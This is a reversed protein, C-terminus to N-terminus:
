RKKEGKNEKEKAQKGERSELFVHSRKFRKRGFAMRTARHPRAAKNAKAITIILKETDLGNTNANSILSKLLKIFQKSAKVPYRGSMKGKPMNHKHPIEGKMPVAIEKRSVKELMEIARSPNKGRIFNCIAVSHKTSIEMDLGRVIAYDFKQEKKKIVKKEEKVEQKPEEKKMEEKKEEPKKEEIKKEKIDQKIEEAM